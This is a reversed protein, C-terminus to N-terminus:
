TAPMPSAARSPAARRRLFRSQSPDFMLAFFLAGFEAGKESQNRSSGCNALSTAAAVPTRLDFSSISGNGPTAFRDIRESGHWKAAPKPPRGTEDCTRKQKTGAEIQTDAEVNGVTDTLPSLNATPSM